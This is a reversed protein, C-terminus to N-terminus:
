RIPPQSYRLFPKLTPSSQLYPVLIMTHKHLYLSFAQGAWCGQSQVVDFPIGRLLYELTGGIRLSHGKINPLNHLKALASIRSLFQKCSLPHLSGDAHRWTFLHNTPQGPNVALHNEIAFFPDAPGDQKTCQVSEGKDAAVKTWPLAFKLVLLDNRDRVQSM